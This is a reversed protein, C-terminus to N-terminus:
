DVVQPAFLEALMCRVSGGGAAEITPIDAVVLEGYQALQERGARELADLARKSLAIVPGHGRLQLINAAFDQMQQRSIALVTRGHAALETVVTERETPDTIADACIVAFGTGVSMMVNTHYIPTGSGDVAHFTVPRYDLLACVENLPGPHTRPSLCAYAVRHVHDFVISGTGELFRDDFEHSSLDVLRRIALGAHNRLRDTVEPRRELRRNEALMPYVVLTGDAHCSIWNNPFVEDPLPPNDQGAIQVVRVGHADLLAAVSEMEAQARSAVQSPRGRAKGQFRNSSRTQPNAGFHAPRIMLVARASQAPDCVPATRRTM